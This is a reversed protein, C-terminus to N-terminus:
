PIESRGRITIGLYGLPLGALDAGSGSVHGVVVNRNYGSCFPHAIASVWSHWVWVLM